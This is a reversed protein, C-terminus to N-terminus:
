RYIADYYEEAHNINLLCNENYDYHKLWEFKYPLSGLSLHLDRLKFNKNEIFDRITFINAKSLICHLSHTRGNSVLVAPSPVQAFQVLFEKKILPCDGPIFMVKNYRAYKLGTYIGFMPSFDDFSEVILKARKLYMFKQHNKSIVLVEFSDPVNCIINEILFRGRFPQILKDKKFRSSKGGALIAVTIM